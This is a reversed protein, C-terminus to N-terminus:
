IRSHRSQPAKCPVNHSLVVICYVRITLWKVRNKGSGTGPPIPFRYRTSAWMEPLIRIRKDAEHAPSLTLVCITEQVVASFARSEDVADVSAPLRGPCVRPRRLEGRLMAEARVALLPRLGFGVRESPQRAAWFFYNKGTPQPGRSCTWQAFDKKRHESQRFDSVQSGPPPRHPRDTERSPVEERIMRGRILASLNM